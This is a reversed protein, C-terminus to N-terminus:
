RKRMSAVARTLPRWPHTLDGIADRKLQAFELFDNSQAARNAAVKDRAFAFIIGLALGVLGGLLTKRVGGRPDAVIPVEPPELVTIVPLDRMEEIRATEYSQLLSTYIQQRMDVDRQLRGYAIMLQPSTRYQRNRELFSELEAEAQRLEGRKEEVQREVFGREAAAQEQRRSLNLVNIQDLLRTGIQQSLEPRSSRVAVKIVGTARNVEATIAGELSEIVKSRRVDARPHNIRFIEILNGSRVGSDGQVTYKDQAIKWLVPRSELLDLYFQASQSADGGGITIGLQAALGGVQTQGRAGKPMFQAESTFYRPSRVSRAGAIFALTLALLVIPVRNRLIVNFLSVVSIVGSPEAGAIIVERSEPQPVSVLETRPRTM